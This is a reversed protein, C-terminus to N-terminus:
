TYSTIYKRPVHTIEGVHGPKLIIFRIRIGLLVNSAVGVDPVFIIDADLLELILPSTSAFLMSVPGKRIPEPKGM